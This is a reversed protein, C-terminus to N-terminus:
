KESSRKDMVGLAGNSRVTQGMPRIAVRNWVWASIEGNPLYFGFEFCPTSRGNQALQEAIGREMDADFSFRLELDALGPRRFDVQLERTWVANGPFVRNCALAPIPDALAAMAGGFMSGGPNRNRKLPLLIRVERWDDSLVLLKIGMRRFPPFWELRRRASMFGNMGPWHRVNMMNIGGM